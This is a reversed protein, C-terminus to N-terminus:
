RRGHLVRIQLSQTGRPGGSGSFRIACSAKGLAIPRVRYLAADRGVYKELTVGVRSCGDHVQFHGLFGRQWVRVTVGRSKGNPFDIGIPEIQLYGYSSVDAPGVASAVPVTGRPQACASLALVVAAILTGAKLM